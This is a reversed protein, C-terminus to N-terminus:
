TCIQGKSPINLFFNRAFFKYKLTKKETSTTTKGRTQTHPGKTHAHPDKFTHSWLGSVQDKTRSSSFSSGSRSPTKMSTFSWRCGTLPLCSFVAATLPSDVAIHVCLTGPLHTKIVTASTFSRSRIGAKFIWQPTESIVQGLLTKYNDAQINPEWQLLRNNCNVSMSASSVRLCLKCLAAMYIYM